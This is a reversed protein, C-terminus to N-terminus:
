AGHKPSPPPRSTRLLCWLLQLQVLRWLLLMSKGVVHVCKTKVAVERSRARERKARQPAACEDNDSCVDARNENV